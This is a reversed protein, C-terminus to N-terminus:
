TKVWAVSRLPCMEQRATIALLTSGACSHVEPFALFRSINSVIDNWNLRKILYALNLADMHVSFIFVPIIFVTVFNVTRLLYCEIYLQKLM